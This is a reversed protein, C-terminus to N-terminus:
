RAVDEIGLERALTRVVNVAHEAWADGQDAVRQARRRFDALTAAVKSVPLHDPPPSGYKADSELAKRRDAADEAKGAKALWEASPGSVAPTEREQKRTEEELRLALSSLLLDDASVVGVVRDTQGDGKEHVVIGEPTYQCYHNSM